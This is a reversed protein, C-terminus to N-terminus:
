FTSINDLTVPRYTLHVEKDEPIYENVLEYYADEEYYYTDLHVPSFHYVIGDNNTDAESPFYEGMQECLEKELNGGAYVPEYCQPTTAFVYITYPWVVTGCSHNHSADERVYGNSYFTCFAGLAGANIVYDSAKDYRWVQTYMGAMYTNDFTVILEEVGDGTVDAIAFSPDEGSPSSVYDTPHAVIDLLVEKYATYMKTKYNTTPVTTPAETPRETQKEVTGASETTTPNNKTTTMHSWTIDDPTAVVKKKSCCALSFIVSVVLFLSLFRFTSKKM